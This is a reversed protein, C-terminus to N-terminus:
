GTVNTIGFSSRLQSGTEELSSDSTVMSTIVEDVKRLGDKPLLMVAMDFRNIKTLETLWSSLFQSEQTAVPELTLIIDLLLDPEMSGGGFVKALSAPPISRLYSLKPGADTGFTRWVRMM